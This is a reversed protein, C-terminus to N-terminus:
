FSVAKDPIDLKSNPPISFGFTPNQILERVSGMRRARRIESVYLDDRYDSLFHKSWFTM